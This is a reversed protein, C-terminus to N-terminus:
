ATKWVQTGVAAARNQVQDYLKTQKLNGQDFAARATKEVVDRSVRAGGWENRILHSILAALDHGSCFDELDTQEEIAVRIKSALETETCAPEKSKSIAVASM